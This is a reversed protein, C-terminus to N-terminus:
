IEMERNKFAGKRYFQWIMIAAVIASIGDSVPISIWVGKTGFFEPLILLMPILFLLQRCLSMFISKKPM